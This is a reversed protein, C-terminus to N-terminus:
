QQKRGVQAHRIRQLNKSRWALGLAILTTVLILAGFIALPIRFALESHYVVTTPIGGLYAALFIGVFIAGTVEIALLVKTSLSDLTMTASGPEVSRRYKFILPLGLLPLSLFWLDLNHGLFWAYWNSWVSNGGFYIRTLYNWLFYLGLSLIITGAAQLNLKDLSDVKSSKITFYAAYITLMLLGVITLAFNLINEPHAYLYEIGKQRIAYQWNSTNSIWFLMIYITGTILAWKIMKKQPKNPSLTYALIFLAIPIIISEIILATTSTLSILAAETTRFSSGRTVLNQVTFYTSSLLGLWYIGELVVVLRALKLATPKPMGKKALYYVIAAFAVLGAVLRFVMGVFGTIDEVYVPFSFGGGFRNWEGIWELTFVAHLSFLCYAATVILLGIKLPSYFKAETM